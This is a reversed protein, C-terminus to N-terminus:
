DDTVQQEQWRRFAIRRRSIHVGSREAGSASVCSKGIEAGCDLCPVSRLSPGRVIKAKPNAPLMHRNGTARIGDRARPHIKM